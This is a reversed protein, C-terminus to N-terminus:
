QIHVAKVGHCFQFITVQVVQISIKLTSTLSNQCIYVGFYGGNFLYVVSKIVRSFEEM